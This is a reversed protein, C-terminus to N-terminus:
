LVWLSQNFIILILGFISLYDGKLHFVVLQLWCQFTAFQIADTTMFTSGYLFASLALWASQSIIYMPTDAWISAQPYYWFLKEISDSSMYDSRQFWTMKHTIFPVSKSKLDYIAMKSLSNWSGSSIEEVLSFIENWILLCICWYYRPHSHENAINFKNSTWMLGDQIRIIETKIHCNRLCDLNRWCSCIEAM